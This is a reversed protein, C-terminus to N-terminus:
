RRGLNLETVAETASFGAGSAYFADRLPFHIRRYGFIQSMVRNCAIRIEIIREVIM